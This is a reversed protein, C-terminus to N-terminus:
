LLPPNCSVWSRARAPLMTGKVPWILKVVCVYMSPSLSSTLSLSMSRTSVVQQLNDLLCVEMLWPNTDEAEMAKIHFIMSITPESKNEGNM